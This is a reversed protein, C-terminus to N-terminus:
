HLPLILERLISTVRKFCGLIHNAKQAAFDSLGQQTMDVKEVVLTGLYKEATKSSEICEAQQTSVPTQGLM